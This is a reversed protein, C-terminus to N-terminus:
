IIKSKQTTTKPESGTSENLFNSPILRQNDDHMKIRLNKAYSSKHVDIDCIGCRRKNQTEM